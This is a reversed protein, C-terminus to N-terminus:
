LWAGDDVDYDHHGDCINESDDGDEDVDEDVDRRGNEKTYM